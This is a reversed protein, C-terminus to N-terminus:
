IKSLMKRLESGNNRLWEYLILVDIGMCFDRVGLKIYREAEKPSNIEARPPIGM